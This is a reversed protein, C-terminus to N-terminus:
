ESSFSFIEESEVKQAESSDNKKNEDGSLQLEQFLLHQLVKETKKKKKNKIFKETLTLANRNRRNISTWWQVYIKASTGLIVANEM